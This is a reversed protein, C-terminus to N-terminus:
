VKIEGSEVKRAYENAEKQEEIAAPVDVIIQALGKREQHTALIWKAEPLSIDFALERNFGCDSVLADHIRLFWPSNPQSGSKGNILSRTLPMAWDNVLPNNFAGFADLYSHFSACEENFDFGLIESADVPIKRRRKINRRLKGLLGGSLSNQWLRMDLALTDGERKANFEGRTYRCAFAAGILSPLDHPKDCVFSAGMGHMVLMHHISLPLLRVGLVVHAESYVAKAIRGAVM